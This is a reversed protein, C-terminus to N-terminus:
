INYKKEVLGDVECNDFALPILETLKDVKFGRVLSNSIKFNTFDCDVFWCAFLYTNQWQASSFNCKFFKCRRFGYENFGGKLISKSFDCNYFEVDTANFKLKSNLFTSDFLSSKLIYSAKDFKFEICELERVNSDSIVIVGDGFSLKFNNVTISHINPFNWLPEGCGLKSVGRLDLNNLSELQISKNTIPLSNVFTPDKWRSRLDTRRTKM